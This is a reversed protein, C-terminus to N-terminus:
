GPKITIAVMKVTVSTDCFLEPFGEPDCRPNHSHRIVNIVTEPTLLSALSFWPLLLPRTM